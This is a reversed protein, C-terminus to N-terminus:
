LQSKLKAAISRKIYTVRMGCVGIREGIEKNSMKHPDSIILLCVQREQETLSSLDLSLVDEMEVAPEVGNEKMWDLSKCRNLKEKESALHKMMDVLGKSILQGIYTHVKVNQSIDYSRLGQEIKELVLSAKDEGSIGFYKDTLRRILGFHRCYFEAVAQSPSIDAQFCLELDSMSRTKETRFTQAFRLTQLM